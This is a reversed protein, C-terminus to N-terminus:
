QLSWGFLSASFFRKKEAAIGVYCTVGAKSLKQLSMTERFASRAVALANNKSPM